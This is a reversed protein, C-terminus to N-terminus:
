NEALLTEIIKSIEAGAVAANALVQEITDAQQEPGGTAVNTIASLGLVDLGCHNAAIVELVTSMGVADAGVSRLYRREASTELSPGMVGVYVGQRIDPNNQVVTQRLNAVYASSMDPFRLGVTEDNSGILPNLGTLNIHDTILMVDGPNYDSNLGGAANTIILTKVGLKAMLYVPRVVDQASWGEYPHLRGDAIVVRKSQYRGCILKGAHGPASTVSFGPLESYAFCQQADVKETLGSLGSGLIIGVEAINAQKANLLTAIKQAATAVQVHYESM